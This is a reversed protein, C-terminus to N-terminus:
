RSTNRWKLYIELSKLYDSDMSVYRVKEFQIRMRDDPNGERDISDLIFCKDNVQCITGVYFSNSKHLGVGVLRNKTMIGHFFERYDDLCVNDFYIRDEDIQTYKLPMIKYVM